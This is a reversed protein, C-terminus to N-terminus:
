FSLFIIMQTAGAEAVTEAQIGAKSQKNEDKGVYSLGVEELFGDRIAGVWDVEGEKAEELKPLILRIIWLQLPKM